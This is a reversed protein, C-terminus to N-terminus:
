SSAARRIEEILKDMREQFHEDQALHEEVREIANLTITHDSRGVLEAVKALSLSTERSLIYLITQRPHVLVKPRKESVIDEPEVGYHDAVIPFTVLVVAKNREIEELRREKEAKIEAKRNLWALREPDIPRSAPTFDMDKAPICIQLGSTGEFVEKRTALARRVSHMVTSHDRGGLIQGIERYPYGGERLQAAVEHRVAAVLPTRGRGVVVEPTLGNLLANTQLIHVADPRRKAEIM